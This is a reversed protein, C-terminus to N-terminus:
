IKDELLVTRMRKREKPNIKLQMYELPRDMQSLVEKMEAQLMDLDVTDVNSEVLRKLREVADVLDKIADPSIEGDKKQSLLSYQRRSLNLIEDLIEDNRGTTQPENIVLAKPRAELLENIGSELEPWFLEFMKQLRASDLQGNILSSNLTGIFRNVDEKNFLTTQFQKFPGSIDSNKVGVLFPCVYSEEIVKSLAGAEFHVWPAELNDPTLCVIGFSSEKLKESVNPGWRQGKGIDESSVYPDISQIVLPLWERLKVAIAKSLDGSWSIFVKL